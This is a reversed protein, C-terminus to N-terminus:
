EPEIYQLYTKCYRFVAEQTFKGHLFGYQSSTLINNELFYSLLQKYVIKELIKAFIVTQSVPRWNGAQNKEGEKPLLTVTACTWTAPFIGFFLSNAFLHRFKDPIKDPLIKCIKSNVGKICSSSHIDIDLMYSYIDELAPPM